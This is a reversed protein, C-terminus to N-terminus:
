WEPCACFLVDIVCRAPLHVRKRNTCPTCEKPDGEDTWHRHVPEAFYTEGTAVIELMQGELDTEGTKGVELMQGNLDTEGTALVELMQGQLNTEGTAAVELMQRKLDTEGTAVIELMQGNLDTEGTAVDHPTCQAVSAIEEMVLPVLFDKGVISGTACNQPKRRCSTRRPIQSWSNMDDKTSCVFVYRLLPEAREVAGVALVRSLCVLQLNVCRVSAFGVLEPAEKPFQSCVRM